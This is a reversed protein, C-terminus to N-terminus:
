WPAWGDVFIPVKRQRADALATPYDNEIFPLAERAEAAPRAAPASTACATLALAAALTLKRM